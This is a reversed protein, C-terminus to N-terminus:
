CYGQSIAPSRYINILIFLSSNFYIVFNFLIACIIINRFGIVKSKGINSNNKKKISNTIQSLNYNSNLIRMHTHYSSVDFRLLQRPVLRRIHRM